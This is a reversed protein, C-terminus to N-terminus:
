GQKHQNLIKELSKIYSIALRLTEVKSLRKERQGPTLPLHSRLKEFGDNVNRVRARERENRRRIFSATDFYPSTVLNNPLPIKCSTSFPDIRQFYIENEDRMEVPSTHYVFQASIGNFNTLINSSGDCSLVTESEPGADFSVMFQVPEVENVQHPEQKIEVSDSDEMIM